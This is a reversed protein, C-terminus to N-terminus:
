PTPTGDAEFRQISAKKKLEEIASIGIERSLEDRVEEEVDQFSPPAGVRREEVKIVHWGFESKVPVKSVDGPQMAFAAEAFEPVMEDKAFFGLDGGNAGAPDTSQKKALEAFDAGKGIEAIITKAEAESNVLIHRARVQEQGSAGAVHREYQAKLAAETTREEIVKLMYQRELLQEEVRAMLKLHEDEKQMGQRRAEQAALKSGILGNLLTPYLMQVPMARFQEPLRQRAMEVDSMRILEGNVIAVTSDQTAQQDPAGPSPQARADSALVAGAIFASLVAPLLVGRTDPSFM